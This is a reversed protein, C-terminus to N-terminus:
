GMHGVKCKAVPDAKIPFGGGGRGRILIWCIPIGNKMNYVGGGGMFGM